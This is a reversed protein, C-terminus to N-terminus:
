TRPCPFPVTPGNSVLAMLRKDPPYHRTLSSTHILEQTRLDDAPVVLQTDQARDDLVGRAARTAARDQQALRPDALGPQEIDVSMGYVTDATRTIPPEPLSLGRRPVAATRPAPARGASTTRVPLLLPAIAANTVVVVAM